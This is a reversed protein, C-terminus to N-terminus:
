AAAGEGEGWQCQCRQRRWREVDLEAVVDAVGHDDVAVEHHRVGRPHGLEGDVRLRAVGLGLAGHLDV